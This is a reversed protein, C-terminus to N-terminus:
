IFPASQSGTGLPAAGDFQSCTNRLVGAASPTQIKIFPVGNGANLITPQQSAPVAKCGIILANALPVLLIQVGLAFLLGFATSELQAHRSLPQAARSRAARDLTNAARAPSKPWPWSCAV